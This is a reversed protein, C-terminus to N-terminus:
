IRFVGNKLHTDERNIVVSQFTIKAPFARSAISFKPQPVKVSEAAPEAKQVTEIKRAKDFIQPLFRCCDLADKLHVSAFQSVSESSSQRSCHSTKPLPCSETEAAETTECCFLFLVGSMWFVLSAVAFKKANQRFSKRM